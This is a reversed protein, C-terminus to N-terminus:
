QWYMVVDEMQNQECKSRIYSAMKDWTEDGENWRQTLESRFEISRIFTESESTQPKAALRVTREGIIPASEEGVSIGSTQSGFSNDRQWVPGWARIDQHMDAAIIALVEEEEESWTTRGTYEQAMHYISDRRETFIIVGWLYRCCSKNITLKDGIVRLGIVFPLALNWLKAAVLYMACSYLYQCHEPYVIRIVRQNYEDVENSSLSSTEIDIFKHAIQLSGEKALEICRGLAALRSQFPANPTLNHRFLKLKTNEMFTHIDLYWGSNHQPDPDYSMLASIKEDEAQLRQHLTEIIEESLFPCDRLLQVIESYITMWINLQSQLIVRRELGATTSATAHQPYLDLYNNTITPECGQQSALM